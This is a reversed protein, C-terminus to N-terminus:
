PRDHGGTDAANAEPGPREPHARRAPEIRLVFPLEAVRRLAAAGEVRGPLVSGGAPRAHFGAEALASRQAPGPPGDTLVLLEVAGALRGGSLLHRGRADLKDRWDRTM